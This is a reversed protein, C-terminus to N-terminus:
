LPSTVHSYGNGIVKKEDKQDNHIIMPINFPRLSLNFLADPPTKLQLLLFRQSCLKIISHHFPILRITRIDKM